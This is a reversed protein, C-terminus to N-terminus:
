DEMMKRLDAILKKRGKAIEGDEEIPFYNSLEICLLHRCVQELMANGGDEFAQEVMYLDADILTKQRREDYNQYRNDINLWHEKIYEQSQQEIWTM